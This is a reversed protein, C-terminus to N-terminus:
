FPIIRKREYLWKSLIDCVIHFPAAPHVVLEIKDRSRNVAIGFGRAIIFKAGACKCQDGAPVDDPRVPLLHQDGVLQGRAIAELKAVGNLDAQPVHLEPPVVQAFVVGGLHEICPFQLDDAYEMDVAVLRDPVIHLFVLHDIVPQHRVLIRDGLDFGRPVPVIVLIIDALRRVIVQRYEDIVRGM